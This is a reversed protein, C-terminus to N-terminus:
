DAERGARLVDEVIARVDDDTTRHNVFCARLVFRGRITANSLVVRGGRVVRRLIEANLRDAEDDTAALHRFCVASLEVPAVLELEPEDAVLRSLLQAHELDERIAARFQELGHYRLSVWLKLARFRRSLEISEEFFAFSEIPDDFLVRAYDDTYSFTCRATESDRYLIVSFDLPQYLWKHADLSLSDALALGEFTEPIAIAAPAGYAGDV